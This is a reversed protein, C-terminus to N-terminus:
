RALESPRSAFKVRGDLEQLFAYIRSLVAVSQNLRRKSRLSGFSAEWELGTSTVPSYRLLGVAQIPNLGVNIDLRMAESKDPRAM